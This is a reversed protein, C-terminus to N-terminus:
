DFRGTITLLQMFYGDGSSSQTAESGNGDAGTCCIVVRRQKGM